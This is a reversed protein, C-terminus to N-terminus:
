TRANKNLLKTLLNTKKSNTTKGTQLDLKPKEPPPLPFDEGAKEDLDISLLNQQNIEEKVEESTILGKDYLAIVNNMKSTNVQEEELASLMRLPKYQIRLDDPVFGFIKQCIIKLMQIILNDLKGRIESEIMANYNEIDDEGSNFGSASQGFIKTLPMRLDNAIGIRIQQLIESLGAFNIQKQEYDDEKDKVIANQYNKTSNTLEIQEKVKETGGKTMLATNFGKIGFVDVKAEDILEFIVNNNKLYQNISRVIREVESMGWGRLQPRVFSPARKGKTLLVRSKDLPNGYYFFELDHIGTKVYAKREGHAPINTKHLEWLDVAEFSLPTNKNIANINLPQNSKGVTNIVMGGGGYLRTWRALDKIEEIVDHDKLYNQLEQINEADLERSQIDIGGRFADEVPQDIMTQIIGNTTYTYTLTSWENSIFYTRNNKALTATQSLQVGFDRPFGLASNLDGLSNAIVQSKNSKPQNSM